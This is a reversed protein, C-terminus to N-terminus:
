GRWRCADSPQLALQRGDELQGEQGAVPQQEAAITEIVDEVVDLHTAGEDLLIGAVGGSLEHLSAFSRPVRSLAVATTAAAIGVRTGAAAASGPGADRVPPTGPVTIAATIAM